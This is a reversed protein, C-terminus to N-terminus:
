GYPLPKEAVNEAVFLSCNGKYKAVYAYGYNIYDIRKHAAIGYVIKNFFARRVPEAPEYRYIKPKHSQM